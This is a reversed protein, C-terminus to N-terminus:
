AWVIMTDIKGNAHLTLRRYAPPKDDVAFRKSHVRFQRCTSPTGLIRMSAYDEEFEQHVHGFLAARVKGSKAAVRLFEESNLLGVRDLWQSGVPLPPHHLALLVHEAASSQLLTELRGLAEASVRGAAIGQESSDIGAILWPGPEDIGCYTFSWAALVEQMLSAVDHNGPVCHVPLQLAHLKRCFREYAARSDDQIVDGTVLVRDAAWGSQQYHELVRSLCADTVRGRFTCDAEAFLHPDTLHLVRLPDSPLSSTAITIRSTRVTGPM